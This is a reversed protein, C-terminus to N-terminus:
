SSASPMKVGGQSDIDPALSSSSIPRLHSQIEEV